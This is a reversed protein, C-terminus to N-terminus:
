AQRVNLNAGLVTLLLGCLGIPLFATWPLGSSDWLAGCVIPTIVAISYSITFMGAATRHVEGPPSVVAPLGFSVVFTVSAAFGLVAASLVIWQGEGIVIGIVGLLTLPGFVTYPWKHGQITEAMALLLASAILQAGNLWGIAPGILAGRGTAALYEPVFANAAFFQANNVGLTVGLLWLQPSKWDPWWRLPAATAAPPSRLAPAAFLLAAALVPIAWVVLNARWSGGVAPLTLPITAAAAITSGVLMGNTYGASALAIRTPLWMRVLTPMSPQLISIGGGMVVTAAYLTWVDAVTGRAAAGLAAILLGLFAVRVAGLRAILLSGPIAAAAFMVLPMGMLAGVQTETMHLDNHILPIVPPVVLLPIRMAAGALWLLALIGFIRPQAPRVDPAASSTM